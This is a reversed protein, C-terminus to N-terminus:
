AASLVWERWFRDASPIPKLSGSGTTNRRIAVVHPAFFLAQARKTIRHRSTRPMTGITYVGRRLRVVRCNRIEWRLADSIVKSVRGWVTYGDAALQRALAQVTTHGQEIYRTLVYRLDRGSLADHTEVPQYGDTSHPTQISPCPSDAGTPRGPNNPQPSDENM